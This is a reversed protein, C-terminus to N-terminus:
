LTKVLGLVIRCNINAIMKIRTIEIIGPFQKWMSTEHNNILQTRHTCIRLHRQVSKVFSRNADDIWPDLKTMMTCSLSTSLFPILINHKILQKCLKLVIYKPILKANLNHKVKQKTQKIQGM